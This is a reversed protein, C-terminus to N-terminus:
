EAEAAEGAEGAAEPTGAIRTLRDRFPASIKGAFELIKARKQDSVREDLTTAMEERTMQAPAKGQDMAALLLRAAAQKPTSM